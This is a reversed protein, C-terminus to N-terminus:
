LQKMINLLSDATAKYKGDVTVFSKLLEMAEAKKGITILSQIKLWHLEYADKSLIDADESELTHSMIYRGESIENLSPIVKQEELKTVEAIAVEEKGESISRQVSVIAEGSKEKLIEPSEITTSAVLNDSAANEIVHKTLFFGVIIMAAVSSMTAYLAIRHKKKREWQATKHLKQKRDTLSRKIRYTLEIEKRLEPNNLAEQEFNLSEEPSMEKRLYKDILEYNREDM